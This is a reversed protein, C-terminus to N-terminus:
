AADCADCLHLRNSCMSCAVHQVNRSRHTQTCRHTRSFRHVSLSAPQAATVPHRGIHKGEDRSNVGPKEGDVV